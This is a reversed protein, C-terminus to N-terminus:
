GNIRKLYMLLRYVFPMKPVFYKDCQCIPQFLNCPVVSWAFATLQGTVGDELFTLPYACFHEREPYFSTELHELYFHCNICLKPRSSRHVTKPIGRRRINQFDKPDLRASFFHIERSGWLSELSKVDEACFLSKESYVSRSM